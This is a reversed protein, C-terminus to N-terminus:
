TDENQISDITFTIIIKKGAFPHNFDVDIIDGCDKIIIGKLKKGDSLSAVIINGESLDADPDIRNKPINMSFKENYEGYADKPELTITKTDGIKMGLLEKEITPFIQNKGIEILVNKNDKKYFIQGNELKGELTIKIKDGLEVLKM